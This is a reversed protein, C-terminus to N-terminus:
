PILKLYIHYPSCGLIIRSFVLHECFRFSHLKVIIFHRIDRFNFNVIIYLTDWIFKYLLSYFRTKALGACQYIIIRFQMLYNTFICM